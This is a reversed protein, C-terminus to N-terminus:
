RLTPQPPNYQITLGALLGDVGFTQFPSDRTTYSARVGIRVRPRFQYGIELGAERAREDQVATEVGDPTVITVTGDSALTGLRGWLRFYLHSMLVKDLYVEFSDTANTPTAGSTQFASYGIEREWTAGLTTKPSVHWAANVSATFGTREGGADLRFWQYGFLAHGVLLATEDTRFGGFVKLSDGDREAARPFRYWEQEAGSVLQTKVTLAVRLEGAARYRDQTLTEGLDTGLYDQSDTTTREREGILALALRDGLNRRLFARTGETEQQVRDYVEYSPRRFTSAYHEEVFFRTKVGVLDLQATGHGNLQRQSDTKAFYLYDLGGDLRFRSERGFPRVIELGPGLSATFDTQRDEPTYFVNTDIGMSGINLYPTLYFSGVRFLGPREAPAVDAVPAEAVPEQAAALAPLLLLALLPVACPIRVGAL